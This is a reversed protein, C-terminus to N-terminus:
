VATVTMVSRAQGNRLYYKHRIRGGGRLTKEHTSVCGGSAILLGIELSIAAQWRDLPALQGIFSRPPLGCIKRLPCIKHRGMRNDARLASAGRDVLQIYKCPTEEEKPYANCQQQTNTPSDTAQSNPDDNEAFLGCSPVHCQCELCEPNNAAINRPPATTQQGWDVVDLEPSQTIRGDWSRGTFPFSSSLCRAAGASVLVGLKCPAFPDSM